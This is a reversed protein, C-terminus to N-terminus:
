DAVILSDLYFNLIEVVNLQPDKRFFFFMSFLGKATM